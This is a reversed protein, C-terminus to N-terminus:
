EVLPQILRFRSPAELKRPLGSTRPPPLVQLLTRSRQPADSSGPALRQQVGHLSLAQRRQQSFTGFRVAEQHQQPSAQPHSAQDLVLEPDVVVFAVDPLNQPLQVPALLARDALRALAVFPRGARFSLRM